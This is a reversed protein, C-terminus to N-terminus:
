GASWGPKPRPHITAPTGGALAVATSRAAAIQKEDLLEIALDFRVSAGPALPVV